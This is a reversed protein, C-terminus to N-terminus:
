KGGKGHIKRHCSRCLVILNSICNNWDEPIVTNSRGKGDLHHILLSETKGCERCEWGDRNMVNEWQGGFRQNRSSLKVRLRSIDPFNNRFDKARKKGYDRNKAAWANKIEKSREPHNKAWKNQYEKRKELDKFPM